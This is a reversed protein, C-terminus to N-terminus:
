SRSGSSEHCTRRDISRILRSGILAVILATDIAFFISMGVFRAVQRRQPILRLIVADAVISCGLILSLDM